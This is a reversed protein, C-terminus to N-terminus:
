QSPKVGSQAGYMEPTMIWWYAGERRRPDRRPGDLLFGLKRLTRVSAKNSMACGAIVNEAGAEDFLFAIIRASAEVAFGQRRYTEVVGYGIEISRPALPVPEFRIDGIVREDEAHVIIARTPAAAGWGARRAEALLRMGGRAWDMPIDANIADALAVADGARVALSPTIPELRLRPTFLPRDLARM